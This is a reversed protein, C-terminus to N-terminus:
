QEYIMKLQQEFAVSDSRWTRQPIAPKRMAEAGSWWANEYLVRAQQASIPVFHRRSSYDHWIAWVVLAALALDFLHKM